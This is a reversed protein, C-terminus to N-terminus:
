LSGDTSRASAREFLERQFREDAADLRVLKLEVITGLHIRDGDKLRTPRKAPMRQGNLFTGNSSGEDTLSVCCTSDMSFSAHRRSVTADILQFTNGGSRGVSAGHETIRLM